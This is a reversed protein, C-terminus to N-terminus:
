ERVNKIWKDKFGQVDEESYFHHLEKSGYCSEFYERSFEINKVAEKYYPYYWKKDATNGLSLSRGSVGLFDFLNQYIEDLKECQYIFIEVNNEKIISYGREKDFPYEYINLGFFDRFGEDLRTQILDVTGRHDEVYKSFLVGGGYREWREKYQWLRGLGIQQFLMSINQSIVDRIATIVKIKKNGIIDRLSKGRSDFFRHRLNTYRKGFEDLTYMLTHTGTKPPTCLFIMEDECELWQEIFSDWVLMERFSELYSQSVEEYCTGIQPNKKNAEYKNLADFCLAAEGYTIYDEIGMELLEVVIEEEWSSAIQVVCHNSQYFEELAEPSIVRVGCHDLGWKKPDKDCFYAVEVQHSYLFKYIKEGAGSAGWIIVFNDKYITLDGDIKSVRM